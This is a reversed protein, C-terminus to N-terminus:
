SHSFFSFMRSAFTVAAKKPNVRCFGFCLIFGIGEGARRVAVFVEVEILLGLISVTMFVDM